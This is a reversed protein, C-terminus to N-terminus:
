ERSSNLGGREAGCPPTLAGSVNFRRDKGIFVAEVATKMNDYIGCTGAGKFPEFARAHADFVDGPMRSHCLRVHAVKVRTTVENLM